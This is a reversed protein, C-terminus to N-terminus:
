HNIYIYIYICIIMYVYPNNLVCSSVLSAPCVDNRSELKSHMIPGLGWRLSMLITTNNCTPSPDLFLIFITYNM